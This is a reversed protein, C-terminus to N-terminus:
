TGEKKNARRSKRKGLGLRRREEGNGDTEWSGREALVDEKGAEKRVRRKLYLM